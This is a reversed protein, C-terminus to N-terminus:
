NNTTYYISTVYGDGDVLFNISCSVGGDTKTYRYLGLSEDAAPEGYAAEISAAKDGIRVGEPTAVSDDTLYISTIVEGGDTPQTNVEFGSYYYVRDFGDHTCSAAELKDLPEGLKELIAPDAGAYLSVEGSVFCYVAPAAASEGGTTAEAGSATTVTTDGGVNAATDNCGTMPLTLLSAALLVALSRVKM